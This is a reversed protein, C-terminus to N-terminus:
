HISSGLPHCTFTTLKIQIQILTKWLKGIAKFWAILPSVITVHTPAKVNVNNQKFIMLTSEVLLRRGVFNSPYMLKTNDVDRDHGSAFEHAAPGSDGIRRHKLDGRHENVRKHLERGTQSIYVNDCGKCEMMYVGIQPRRRTSPERRLLAASLTNSARNVVRIGQAKLVPKVLNESIDKFPM